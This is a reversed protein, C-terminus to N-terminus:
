GDWDGQEVKCNENPEHITAFKALEPFFEPYKGYLRLYGIQGFSVWVLCLGHAAWDGMKCHFVQGPTLNFEAM